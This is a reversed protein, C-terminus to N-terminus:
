KEKELAKAKANEENVREIEKLQGRIKKYVRGIREKEGQSLVVAGEGAVATSLAYLKKTKAKLLRM